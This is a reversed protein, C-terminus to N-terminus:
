NTKKRDLLASIKELVILDEQLSLLLYSPLFPNTIMVAEKEVKKPRLSINILISIKWEGVNGEIIALYGGSTLKTEIISMDVGERNVEIMTKEIVSTIDRETAVTSSFDLDASYRPSQHILKLATGGKFLITESRDQQYFYSLFLNQLYERAINLETTQNKLAFEKITESSIM